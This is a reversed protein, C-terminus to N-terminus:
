AMGPSPSGLCAFETLEGLPAPVQVWESGMWGLGDVVLPSVPGVRPSGGGCVFWVFLRGPGLPASRRVPCSLRGVCVTLHRGGPWVDWVAGAEKPGRRRDVCGGAPPVRGQFLLSVGIQSCVFLCVPVGSLRLGFSCPELEVVAPGGPIWALLGVARRRHPPPGRCWLLPPSVRGPRPDLSRSCVWLWPHATRRVATGLRSTRPSLDM